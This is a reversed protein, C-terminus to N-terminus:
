FGIHGESLNVMRFPIIAHFLPNVKETNYAPIYTINLSEM